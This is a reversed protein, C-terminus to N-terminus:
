KFSDLFSEVAAVMKCIYRPSPQVKDLVDLVLKELTIKGITVDVKPHIKTDPYSNPLINFGLRFLVHAKEHPFNIWVTKDEVELRHKAAVHELDYVFIRTGSVALSVEILVNYMEFTTPSKELFTEQNLGQLILWHCLESLKTKEKKNPNPKLTISTITFAPLHSLCEPAEIKEGYAVELLLSRNFYSISFGTEDHSEFDGERYSWETHARRHMEYTQEKFQEFSDIAEQKEKAASDSETQLRDFVPRLLEVEEKVKALEKKKEELIKEKEEIEADLKRIEDIEYQSPVSDLMLSLQNEVTLYFYSNEDLLEEMPSNNEIMSVESDVNLISVASSVLRKRENDLKDCSFGINKSLYKTEDLQRQHQPTILEVASIKSMETTPLTPLQLQSSQNLSESVLPFTEDCILEEVTPTDHLSLDMLSQDTVFSRGSVDLFETTSRENEPLKFSRKESKEENTMLFQLVRTSIASKECSKTSIAPKECSKTAKECSKISNAPKECSKTSIAPKECSKISNVEHKEINLITEEKKRQLEVIKMSDGIGSINKATQTYEMNEDCDLVISRTKEVVNERKNEDIEDNLPTLQLKENLIVSKQVEFASIDRKASGVDMSLHLGVETLEMDEGDEFLVSKRKGKEIKLQNKENILHTAVETFE